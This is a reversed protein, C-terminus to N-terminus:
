RSVQVEGSLLRTPGFDLVGLAGADVGLNGELRYPLTRTSLARTAVDALGPLDAFSIVLELPIVTDQGADLPLGLPLDLEAARVGDLFLNGRVTSLRVGFANPNQVRAWLRVAGGGLPRQVSPGLLRLEASRSTDAEFRPPEVFAGLTACAALAAAALLGLGVRVKM